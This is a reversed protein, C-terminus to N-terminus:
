LLVMVFKLLLHLFNFYLYFKGALWSLKPIFILCESVQKQSFIFQFYNYFKSVLCSLIVIATPSSLLFSAFCFFLSPFFHSFSRPTPSALVLHFLINIKIQTNTWQFDKMHWWLYLTSLWETMDSEAVGPVGRDMLIRWNLICSHTAMGKELADGWGLVSGLDGANCTSEKGGSGGRLGRTTVSMSFCM